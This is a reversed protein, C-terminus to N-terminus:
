PTPTLQMMLVDHAPVRAKLRRATTGVKVGTWLDRLRYTTTGFAAMRGSLSDVVSERAWDFAVARAVTDRNLIVMAWAGRVLPKFWVEVSDATSYRFGEIGLSDQDVAVVDHNTLIRATEASMHSLDNGAILPAALVSWMSFHARDESVSMGNGVELMDPDNW